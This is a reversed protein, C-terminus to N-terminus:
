VSAGHNKIYESTMLEMQDKYHLREKKLAEIKLELDSTMPHHKELRVIEKDLEDHKDKAYKFHKDEQYLKEEIVKKEM